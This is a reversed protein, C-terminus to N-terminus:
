VRYQFVRFGSGLSLQRQLVVGSSGWVASWYRLMEVAGVGVLLDPLGWLLESVVVCRWLGWVWWDLLGWLPESVGLPVWGDIAAFYMIPFTQWTVISFIRVFNLSRNSSPDMGDRISFSVMRWMHVNISPFPM